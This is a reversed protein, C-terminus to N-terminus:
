QGEPTFRRRVAMARNTTMRRMEGFRGEVVFGLRGFFRRRRAGECSVSMHHKGTYKRLIERVFRSGLGSDRKEGDIFLAWLHPVMGDEAPTQQVLAFGYERTELVAKGSALADVVDQATLDVIGLESQHAVLFEAIEAGSMAAFDIMIETQDADNACKADCSGAWAVVPIM